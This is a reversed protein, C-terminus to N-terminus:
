DNWQLRRGSKDIRGLAHLGIGIADLAEKHFSKPVTYLAAALVELEEPQLAKRIRKHHIDKPLSTKWLHVPVWGINPSLGGVVAATFASMDILTQPPTKDEQGRNTMQEILVRPSFSSEPAGELFGALKVRHALVTPGRTVAVRRLKGHDFRAVGIARTGPDVPILVDM